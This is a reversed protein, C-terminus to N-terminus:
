GQVHSGIVHSYKTKTWDTNKYRKHLQCGYRM